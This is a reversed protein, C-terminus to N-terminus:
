AFTSLSFTQQHHKNRDPHLHGFRAFRGVIAVEVASEVDSGSEGGCIEGGGNVGGDMEHRM